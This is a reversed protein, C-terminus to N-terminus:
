GLCPNADAQTPRDPLSPVPGAPAYFYGTVPDYGAATHLSGDPRLIPADVIGRLQRLPAKVAFKILSRLEPK